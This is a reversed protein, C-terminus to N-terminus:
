LTVSIGNEQISKLLAENELSQLHIAADHIYESAPDNLVKSLQM